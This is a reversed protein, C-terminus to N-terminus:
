MTDEDNRFRFLYVWIGEEKNEQMLDYVFGNTVASDLVYQISIPVERRAFAMVFIGNPRTLLTQVTEWLPEIICKAYIIDSAILVDYLQGQSHSELFNISTEKGWILQHCSVTSEDDIITKSKNREINGRLHVLADTDGDTICVTSGTTMRWVQFLTAHKVQYECLYDSARWLTLGTSKWIEDAEEKYGRIKLDIHSEENNTHGSETQPREFQFPFIQFPDPDKFPDMYGTEEEEEESAHTTKPPDDPWRIIDDTWRTEINKEPM